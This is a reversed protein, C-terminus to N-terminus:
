KKKPPIKAGARRAESLAIAIAQKRNTVKKGTSGSKLKGEKQEKMVKEVKGRGKAATPSGSGAKKRTSASSKKRATASKKAGSATSKRTSTSSSRSTKKKTAM